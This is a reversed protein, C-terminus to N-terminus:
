YGSYSYLLCIGTKLLNKNMLCASAPAGLVGIVLLPRYSFLSYPEEKIQSMVKVVNLRFNENYDRISSSLRPDMTWHLMSYVYFASFGATLDIAVVVPVFATVLLVTLVTGRFYLPIKPDEM